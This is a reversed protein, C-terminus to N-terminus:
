SIIRQSLCLHISIRRQYTDVLAHHFFIAYMGSVHGDTCRVFQVIQSPQCLQSLATDSWYPSIGGLYSRIAVMATREDADAATLAGAVFLSGIVIFLAFQLSKTM